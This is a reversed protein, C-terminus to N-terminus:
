QLASRLQGPTLGVYRKFLRSFHSQDAFGCALAIESLPLEGRAIERCAQQLRLRRVYSGVAAGFFRRFSRALHVPHVGAQVALGELSLPEGFREHLDDRVRQLWPPPRRGSGAPSLRAAWGVLELGLADLALPTSVDPYRLEPLVQAVIGLLEGGFDGPRDLRVGYGDARAVLAPRLELNLCSVGADGFRVSHEEGAPHYALNMPVAERRTRGYSEGFGGQLTLCFFPQQHAHRALRTGPEYRSECLYLLDSQQTGQVTGHFRGSGLQTGM